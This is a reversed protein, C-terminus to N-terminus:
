CRMLDMFEKTTGSFDQGKGQELENMAELTEANPTESYESKLFRMFNFVLHIQSEDLTGILEVAKERDSM